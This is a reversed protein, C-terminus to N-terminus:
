SGLYSKKPGSRSQNSVHRAVWSVLLRADSDSRADLEHETSVFHARGHDFIAAGYSCLTASHQAYPKVDSDGAFRDLEFDWGVIHLNGRRPLAFRLRELSSGAM